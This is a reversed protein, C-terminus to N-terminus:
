IVVVIPTFKDGLNKGADLTPKVFKEIFPLYFDEMQTKEAPKVIPESKKVESVAPTAVVTLSDMWDMGHEIQKVTNEVKKVDAVPVASGQRMQSKIEDLSENIKLLVELIKDNSNM